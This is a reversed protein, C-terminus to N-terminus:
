SIANGWDCEVDPPCVGCISSFEGENYTKLIKVKDVSNKCSGECLFGNEQWSSITEDIVMRELLNPARASDPLGYCGYAGLITVISITKYNRM